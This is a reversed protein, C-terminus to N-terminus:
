PEVMRWQIANDWIRGELHIDLATKENFKSSDEDVDDAYYDSDLYYTKIENDKNFFTYRWKKVPEGTKKDSFTIERAAILTLKEIKKMVYNKKNKIIKTEVKKLNEIKKKLSLNSWNRSALYLVLIINCNTTALINKEV